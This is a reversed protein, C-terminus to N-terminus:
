SRANTVNEKLAGCSCLNPIDSETIRAGKESVLVKLATLYREKEVAKQAQDKQTQISRKVAEIDGQLWWKDELERLKEQGIM